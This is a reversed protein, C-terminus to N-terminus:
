AAGGDVLTMDRGSANGQEMRWPEAPSFGRPVAVSFQWEPYLSPKPETKGTMPDRWYEVRSRKRIRYIHLIHRREPREAYDTALVMLTEKQYFCQSALAAGYAAELTQAEATDAPHAEFRPSNDEVVRWAKFSKTRTMDALVADMVRAQQKLGSM